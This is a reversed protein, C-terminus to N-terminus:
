AAKSRRIIHAAISVLAYYYIFTVVWSFTKIPDWSTGYHVLSVGTLKHIVLVPWILVYACLSELEHYPINKAVDNISLLYCIFGVVGFIFTAAASLLVKKM